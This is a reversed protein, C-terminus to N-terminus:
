VLRDARRENIPEDLDVVIEFQPGLCQEKRDVDYITVEALMLNLVLSIHLQNTERRKEHDGLVLFNIWRSQFVENVDSALLIVLFLDEFHLATDELSDVEIDALAGREPEELTERLQGFNIV